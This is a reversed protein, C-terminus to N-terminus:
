QTGIYYQTLTGSADESMLTDYVERAMYETHSDLFLANFGGSHPSGMDAKGSSQNYFYYINAKNQNADVALFKHTENRPSCKRLKKQEDDINYQGCFHANLVYDSQDLKRNPCGESALTFYRTDGPYVDLYANMINSTTRCWRDSSDSSNSARLLYGDWEHVYMVVALGIQRLHNACVTQRAKERASQLAPLLMAALIAIIAIVVLLEILTFSATRKEDREDGAEFNRRM